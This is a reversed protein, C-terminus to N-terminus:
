ISAYATHGNLVGVQKQEQVDWLCVTEDYGGSAILKGDPSFVISSPGYTHGELLGVENLNSADYLWVGIGGAVALLKGDPSYTVKRATGKGLRAAPEEPIDLQAPAFLPARSEKIIDRRNGVDGGVQARVMMYSDKEMDIKKKDKAKAFMLAGSDNTSFEGLWETEV